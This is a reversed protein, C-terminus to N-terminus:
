AFLQKIENEVDTIAFDIHGNNVIIKSAINRYPFLYKEYCPMVHKEWAYKIQDHSYNRTKQDRLLRREFQIESPADVFVSFDLRKFLEEYHFVFLGEVFIIESPHITNFSVKEGNRYNFTYERFTIAEGRLLQDIDAILRDKDLATPLDFNVKGNDDLTQEAVPLYYNDLSLVAPHFDKFTAQLKRLLTTKGSGSGGCIGILKKNDKSFSKKLV